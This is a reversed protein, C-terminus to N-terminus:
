AAEEHGSMHAAITQQIPREVMYWSGRWGCTCVARKMTILQGAAFVDETEVRITYTMARGEAM